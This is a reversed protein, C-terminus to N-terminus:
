ARSSTQEWAYELEYHPATNRVGLIPELMIRGGDLYRRNLSEVSVAASRNPVEVQVRNAPVNVLRAREFCVGRAGALPERSLAGELTNPSDFELSRVREALESMRFLNGDLSMPYGWDGRARRWSWTRVRGFGLWPHGTALELAYSYIIEPGLRLSVFTVERRERLAALERDDGAVPAKFVDDDVLFGGLESGPDLLEVTQERFRGPQERVYEVDPHEARALEYGAEFDDGGAAWLVAVRAGAVFRRVSRLLLDLQCARNKSFVTLSPM